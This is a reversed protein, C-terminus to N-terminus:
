SPPSRATRWSGYRRARPGHRSRCSWGRRPGGTRQRLWLGGPGCRPRCWQRRSRARLACACCRSRARAQCRDVEAVHADVDDVRRAVRVEHVLDFGGERDGVERDDHDRRDLTDLHLCLDRPPDSFAAVERPQDEDVLEVPFARVELPRELLEAIEESRADGGELKGIPCSVEKWPTASRRVSVAM